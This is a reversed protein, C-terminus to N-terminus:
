RAVEQSTVVGARTAPGVTGRLVEVWARVHEVLDGYRAVDVVVAWLEGVVRRFSM